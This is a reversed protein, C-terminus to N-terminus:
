SRGHEGDSYLSEMEGPLKAKASARGDKLSIPFKSPATFIPTKRLFRLPQVSVVWDQCPEPFRSQPEPKYSPLVLDQMLDHEFLFMGCNGYNLTSLSALCLQIESRTWLVRCERGKNSSDTTLFGSYMLACMCSRFPKLVWAGCTCTAFAPNSVTTASASRVQRNCPSPYKREVRHSEQNTDGKARTIIM